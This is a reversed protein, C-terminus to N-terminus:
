IARDIAITAEVDDLVVDRTALHAEDSLGDREGIVLDVALTESAIFTRHALAAAEVEGDAAISLRIRDSVELGADKRLRQIRNILERALGEARLEPTIRPDLAVTYGADAAVAYDGRASQVVELEGSEIPVHEGGLDVALPEGRLHSALVATDLGRIAEAVEPTRKGFRAGLARFNPRASMRVLEEADHMYEIQRVNLEERLIGLLGSSLKVDGPVVAYMMGLPQRVRIRAEDRAARGLTALQRVAEMGRELADDRPGASGPFGALHVSEGNRV